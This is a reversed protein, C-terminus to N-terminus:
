TKNPKCPTPSAQETQLVKSEGEIYELLQWTPIHTVDKLENGVGDTAKPPQADPLVKNILVKAAQIQQSTMEEQGLACRQLKGILKSCQIRKRLKNGYTAPISITTAQRPM